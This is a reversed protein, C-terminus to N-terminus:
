YHIPSNLGEQSSLSRLPQHRRSSMSSLSLSLSPMRKFSPRRDLNRMTRKAQIAKLAPGARERLKLVVFFLLRYCVLIAVVAALDWWKSYTVKVGFVKEIVEEGTMKPEGPFLPEFELGLFDNKYGGQIAWSGYSIYSVPYRWFIKPLDPLLRFFGSTMMIIGILGAGTILGMLFNPVVSAVVMMLSEIVSVSFFINLCFFAYHSFGPRFKVLNYTITGTIVSIAVLFPFSSIYNSLIYVSVGYYGSLREKYFVKMEELFSPFGGISMFTMFGTIFGGCSVRALISTYSYGVDYFITGVSISVVIYSIIRTWYYGVDRCMNIFSRATLTRLQKWWTAESGKRIEMELGEQSFFGTISDL